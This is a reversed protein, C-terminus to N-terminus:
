AQALYAHVQDLARAIVKDMDYYRYEGLRGGFIVNPCAAADAQYKALLEASAATNVPYYPIDGLKWDAPFERCIITKESQHVAEREPHFHKFEHIRTYPVSADAYNMVTCGQWDRVPKTEWEFRLGRWPLAGYRYNFYADLPGSYFVPLEAPFAERQALYDTNYRVTIAPHDLLNAFLAFYGERPVGQHPDNFYGIDYNARVPLRRIIFSPLDKPDTNWQKQTYGKIFAEYLPRGILSIAQEELNRPEGTLGAKAVEGAIFGPVDAPKLNTGYFANILALGLPMFYVKGDHETLVRHRYDTFSVFRRAYAWVREDSTHFIHAGYCHCEIGTKPDIQSRANGGPLSRAELVLVRNGAEALERAVVCGWLGAGVVLADFEATEKSM